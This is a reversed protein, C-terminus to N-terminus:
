QHQSHFSRQPQNPKDFRAKMEYFILVVAVICTLACVGILIGLMKKNPNNSPTKM